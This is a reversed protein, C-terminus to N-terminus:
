RISSSPRKPLERWRQGTRLDDPISRDFSVEVPSTRCPNGLLGYCTPTGGRYVTAGVTTAQDLRSPFEGGHRCLSNPGPGNDHDRAVAFLEARTIERPFDAALETARAFRKGTSAEEDPMDRNVGIFHNTRVMLSRSAPRIEAAHPDIEYMAADTEDAVALTLGQVRELPCETIFARADAVTSCEELIRRVIVGNLVEKETDTDVNIFTNAAVLGADNVGQFVLVSGCTSITVFGHRDGISPHTMAAQPRLGAGRIDRNKLVLPHGHATREGSVVVNTCGEPSSDADAITDTVDSFGFAYLRLDEVSVPLVDAMGCFEERYREPLGNMKRAAQEDCRERDIDHETLLGTLTDVAPIVVAEEREARQRGISRHATTM